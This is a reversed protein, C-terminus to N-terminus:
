QEKWLFWLFQKVFKAGSLGYEKFKTDSKQKWSKSIGTKNYVQIKLNGWIFCDLPSADPSRAPCEITERCGIRRGQYGRQQFWVIRNPMGIKNKDPFWYAFVFGLFDSLQWKFLVFSFIRQRLFANVYLSLFYALFHITITIILLKNMNTSIFRNNWVM